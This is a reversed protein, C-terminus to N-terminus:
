QFVFIDWPIILTLTCEPWKEKTFIRNGELGQFGETCPPFFNPLLFNQNWPNLITASSGILQTHYNPPKIRVDPYDMLAITMLSPFTVNMHGM